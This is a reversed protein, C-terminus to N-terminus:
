SDIEERWELINDKNIDEAWSRLRCLLSYEFSNKSEFMQIKRPMYRSTFYEIRIYPDIHKVTINMRFDRYNFVIDMYDLGLEVSELKIDIGTDVVLHFGEKTKYYEQIMKFNM